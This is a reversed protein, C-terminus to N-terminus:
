IGEIVDKKEKRIQDIIGEEFKGVKKVDIKEIYGKVGEYIVEVKEEKKMKQLKKKKMIEKM